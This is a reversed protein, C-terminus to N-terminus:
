RIGYRWQNYRQDQSGCLFQAPHNPVLGPFLLQPYRSFSLFANKLYTERHFSINRQLGNELAFQDMKDFSAPEDDYPGISLIEICTGDQMTDFRIKDLLTGPKKKWVGELLYVSFEHVAKWTFGKAAM